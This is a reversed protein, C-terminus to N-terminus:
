CKLSNERKVIKDEFAKQFDDLTGNSLLEKECVFRIDRQSYCFKFVYWEGEDVVTKVDDFSKEDTRKDSQWLITKDETFISIKSPILLGMNKKSPPIGVSFPILFLVPVATFFLWSRTIGLLVIPWIFVLTTLFGALLGGKYNTKLIRKRCKKSMEGCFEIM